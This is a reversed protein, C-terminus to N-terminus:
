SRRASRKAGTLSLALSRRRRVGRGRDGREPLRRWRRRPRPSRNGDRRLLGAAAGFMATQATLLGVMVRLSPDHASRRSAPSGSPPSPRRTRARSTTARSRTSGCSSSSSAGVRRRLAATVASSRQGHESVALLVGALAPGRLVRRERDGSAVANAATLEEPTRALSPTLAAQSPGSRRRVRDDGRHVLVYVVVLASDAFVAIAARASSSRGPSVNTVSCSRERPYRDGLMGAFPAVLAAPVLRALFLLGVARREASRRLRYVSVAVLFAYHGVISGPGRSSSGASTRMAGSPQSRRSSDASASGCRAVVRLM